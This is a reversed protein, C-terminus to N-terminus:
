LSATSAPMVQGGRSTPRPISPATSRHVQGRPKQMEALFNDIMTAGDASSFKNEVEYFEVWGGPKLNDYIQHILRPWDKVSGAMDRVHVYDYMKGSM